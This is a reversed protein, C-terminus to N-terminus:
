YIINKEKLAKIIEGSEKYTAPNTLLDKNEKHIKNLQDFSEIKTTLLKVSKEPKSSM